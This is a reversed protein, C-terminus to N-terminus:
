RNAVPLLTLPTDRSVEEFKLDRAWVQGTGILSV